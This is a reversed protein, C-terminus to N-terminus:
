PNNALTRERLLVFSESKLVKGSADTIDVRWEGIQDPAIRKKSYVRWRHPSGVRFDVKSLLENNLYWLHSLTKGDAGVFESFYHFVRPTNEKWALQVAEMKDVPERAEVATSFQSRSVLSDSDEVAPPSATPISAPIQTSAMLTPRQEAAVLLWEPNLTIARPPNNVLLQKLSPTPRKPLSRKASAIHLTSIDVPTSGAKTNSVPEHQSVILALLAILAIAAAAGAAILPGKRFLGKDEAHQKIVTTTSAYSENRQELDQALAAIKRATPVEARATELGMEPFIGLTRSRKFGGVQYIFVWTKIGNPFVRVALEPSEPVDYTESKPELGLVHQETFEAM